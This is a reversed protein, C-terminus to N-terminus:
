KQHLRSLWSYVRREGKKVEIVNNLSDYGNLILRLGPGNKIEIKTLHLNTNLNDGTKNTFKIKVLM